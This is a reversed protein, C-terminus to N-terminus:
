GECHHIPEGLRISGSPPQMLAPEAIGATSLAAPMVAKQRQRRFLRFISNETMGASAPILCKCATVFERPQPKRLLSSM